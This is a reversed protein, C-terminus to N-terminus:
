RSMPSVSLTGDGLAENVKMGMEGEKKIRIQGDKSAKATLIYSGDAWIDLRTDAWKEGTDLIIHKGTDEIDFAVTGQTPATSAEVQITMGVKEELSRIISGKPGILRNIEDEPVTITCSHPGTIQVSAHSCHEKAITKITRAAMKQLPESNKEPRSVPVVVTEEGFSYIEHTIRGSEVDRVNVVPRAFDSGQMGHPVKVEMSLTVATAIEGDKIFVITDIIQTLTGQDIKGIFREIAEIASSAHLVGVLGIGALRLDTYLSFDHYDRMEDFVTHDPRTLLLVDRLEDGNDRRREYQTVESPVSLDRPSEITKVVSHQAVYHKVLAAAFTSKGMGPAGAIIIGEAEKRIREKLKEPMHYEELARTTIQRVATIETCDSMPSFTIVIRLGDAQMIQHSETQREISGEHSIYRQLATAIRRVDQEQMPSESFYAIEWKGPRGRKAIGRSGGKLHISMTDESFLRALPNGMQEEIRITSLGMTEAVAWADKSTTVYTGGELACAEFVHHSLREADFRKGTGVIRVPVQRRLERIEDLIAAGDGESSAAHHIIGEVILVEDCPHTDLNRSLAGDRLANVDVVFRGGM